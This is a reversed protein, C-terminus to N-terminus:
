DGADRHPREGSQVHAGAPEEHGLRAPARGQPLIGAGGAAKRGSLARGRQRSGAHDDIRTPNISVAGASTADDESRSHRPSAPKGGHGPNRVVQGHKIRGCHGATSRVGSLTLPAHTKLARADRDARQELVEFGAGPISSKRSHNGPTARSWTSSTSRCASRLKVTADDHRALKLSRMRTM